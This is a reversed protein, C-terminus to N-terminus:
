SARVEIKRPQKASQKPLRVSLVGNALEASIKEADVDEPMAFAREFSGIRQEQTLTTSAGEHSEEARRGTLTLAGNEFKVDIAERTVGPMDAVVLYESASELVDVRPRFTVAHKAPDIKDTKQLDKASM